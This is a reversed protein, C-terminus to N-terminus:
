PLVIEKKPITLLGCTLPPRMGSINVDSGYFGLNEMNSM